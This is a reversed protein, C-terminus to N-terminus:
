NMPAWDTAMRGTANHPHRSLHHNHRPDCVIANTVHPRAVQALWRSLWAVSEEM